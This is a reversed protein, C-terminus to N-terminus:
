KGALARAAEDAALVDELTPSQVVPVGALAHEVRRAIDGFPIKGALFLGVAAENAGNLVATATGGTRAAELALSLCPFAEYDPAHFTLPPCTLLDLPKAVAQTRSPWTLAYQIPLRMDPVGMQALVANDCYEVMSHIISERHVVISIKEPPMRYLRMAEIFELGKNMLTASDVTIKAGMSWNPHNLAQEITASAIREKDWGWFPGGSATLILRKVEGRDKSGQLCQFIASHESDVPVIEAGYQEAGDMVLEGACVLTEKNALAIRKGQRVAALTPVLGVMGVVATLVTDAEALTAAEVLGEPGSAVRIGTDALRTKLDAAAAPDMMVALSPKFQRCQEELRDVDRNATLAAVRMGCAAIVELSQRGISGTSGLLSICNSM